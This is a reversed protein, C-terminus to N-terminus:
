QCIFTHIWQNVPILYIRSHQSQWRGISYIPIWTTIYIYAVVSQSKLAYYNTPQAIDHSLYKMHIKSSFLNLLIYSYIYVSIISTHCPCHSIVAVRFSPFIPQSSLNLWNYMIRMSWPTWWIRYDSHDVTLRNTNYGLLVGTPLIGMEVLSHTPPHTRAHTHIIFHSVVYYWVTRVTEYHLWFKM